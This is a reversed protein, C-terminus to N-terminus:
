TPSANRLYKMLGNILRHTSSLTEFIHRYDDEELYSVDRAILLQNQLETLSGRAMAYFQIKEKASQRSFGEAINSTISVAARRMQNTIGFAEERPFKKTMSYVGLVLQHAQKWAELDMFDRIKKPKPIETM